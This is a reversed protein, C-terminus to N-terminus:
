TWPSPPDRGRAEKRRSGMKAGGNRHGTDGDVTGQKGFGHWGAGCNSLYGNLNQTFFLLLLYVGNM